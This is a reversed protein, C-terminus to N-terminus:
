RGMIAQNCTRTRGAGGRLGAHVSIEPNRAFLGMNTPTKVPPIVPKHDRDTAFTAGLGNKPDRRQRGWVREQCRARRLAKKLAILIHRGENTNGWENFQRVGAELM